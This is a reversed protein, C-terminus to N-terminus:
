YHVKVIEGAADTLRAEIELMFGIDLTARQQISEALYFYTNVTRCCKVITRTNRLRMHWGRQRM